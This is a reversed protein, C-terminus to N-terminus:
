AADEDEEDAFPDYVSSQEDTTESLGKDHHQMLQTQLVKDYEESRDHKIIENSVEIAQALSLSSEGKQDAKAWEQNIARLFSLEPSTSDIARERITRESQEIAGAKPNNNKPYAADLALKSLHTIHDNPYGGAQLNAQAENLTLAKEYPSADSLALMIAPGALYRATQEPIQDVGTRVDNSRTVIENRMEEIEELTLNNHSNSQEIIKM